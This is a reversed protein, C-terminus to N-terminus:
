VRASVHRILRANAWWWWGYLHDSSHMLARSEPAGPGVGEKISLRLANEACAARAEM